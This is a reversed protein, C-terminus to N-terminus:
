DIDRLIQNLFMDRLQSVLGVLMLKGHPKTGKSVCQKGDEALEYGSTCSCM